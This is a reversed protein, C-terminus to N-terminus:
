RSESPLSLFLSDDKLLGFKRMKKYLTTREVGLAKAAQTRNWKVSELTKVIFDKEPSQLADKLNLHNQDHDKNNVIPKQHDLREPFDQPMILNSRTLIVAREIVNELERINGPWNYNLLVSHAEKSIGNIKQGTHVSHKKIFHEALISIDEKRKRLPPIDICIINLRYYLDERFKGKLILEQLNQNTAAIVRVNVKSTKTEGVREFEGDQLVRLLKVQLLPSFADIEDLFITGGDAMEFRGVRDKFAGTFSGKVHGFLESELLTESLAGCSVEVFPKVREQENFNHLAHAIMRKGTGSEGYVLVTARTTCITEILNYIKQMAPSKGVMDYFSDRDPDQLQYKLNVNEESPIEQCEKIHECVFSNDLVMTAIKCISIAYELDKAEFPKRDHKDSVSIVAILGRSTMLPISIFSDTHYKRYGNCEFRSDSKIDKVLVPTKNFAVKGAVGEGIPLRLGRLNLTHENFSSDLVLINQAGDLLFLSAKDAGLVSTIENIAAHLVKKLQADNDQKNFSNAKIM